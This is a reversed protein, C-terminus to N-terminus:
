CLEPLSFLWFFAERERSERRKTNEAFIKAVFDKSPCKLTETSHFKKEPLEESTNQMIWLAWTSKRRKEISDFLAKFTKQSQFTNRWM